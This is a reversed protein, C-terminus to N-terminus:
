TLLMKECTKLYDKCISLRHEYADTMAEVIYVGRNRPHETIKDRLTSVIEAQRQDIVDLVVAADLVSVGSRNHELALRQTQTADIMALTSMIELTDTESLARKKTLFTFV